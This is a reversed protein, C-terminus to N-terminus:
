EGMRIRYYPGGAKLKKLNQIASVEEATEIKLITNEIKALLAKNGSHKKLDKLFSNKFKTKM